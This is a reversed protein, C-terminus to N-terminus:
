IGLVGSLREKHAKLWVPSQKDNKCLVLLMEDNMPYGQKIWKLALDRWTSDLAAILVEDFPFTLLANKPMGIEHLGKKAAELFEALSSDLIRFMTREHNPGRVEAINPSFVSCWYGNETIGYSGNANPDSFVEVYSCSEGDPLHGYVFRGSCQTNLAAVLSKRNVFYREGYLM